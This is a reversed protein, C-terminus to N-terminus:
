GGPPSSVTKAGAPPATTRRATIVSWALLSGGIVIGTFSAGQNARHRWRGKAGGLQLLWRSRLANTTSREARSLSRLILWGATSAAVVDRDRM